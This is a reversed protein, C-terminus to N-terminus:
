DKIDALKKILIEQKLDNLNEFRQGQYFVTGKGEHLWRLHLLLDDFDDKTIHHSNWKDPVKHGCYYWNSNDKWFILDEVGYAKKLPKILAQKLDYINNDKVAEAITILAEDINM